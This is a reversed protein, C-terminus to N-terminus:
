QLIPMLTEHMPRIINKLETIHGQLRNRESPLATDFASQLRELEFRATALLTSYVEACAKLGPSANRLKEENFVPKYRSLEELTPKQTASSHAMFNNRIYKLPLASGTLVSFIICFVSIM